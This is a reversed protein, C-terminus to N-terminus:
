TKNNNGGVFKYLKRASAYADIAGTNFAYRRALGTLWQLGMVKFGIENLKRNVGMKGM